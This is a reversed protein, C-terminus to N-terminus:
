QTNITAATDAPTAVTFCCSAQNGSVGVVELAPRREWTLLYRSNIKDAM